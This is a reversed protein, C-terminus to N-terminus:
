KRSSLGCQLLFSVSFNIHQALTMLLDTVLSEGEVYNYDPMSNLFEAITPSSEQGTLTNAVQGMVGQIMNVVNIDEQNPPESTGGLIQHLVGNMGSLLPQAGQMSVQDPRPPPAPPASRLGATGLGSMIFTSGQTPAARARNVTSRRDLSATRSAVGSRQSRRRGLIPSRTPIHRSMCPLFPDFSNVNGPSSVQPPFPIVFSAPPTIGANTAQRRSGPSTTTSSNTSGRSRQSASSPSGRSTEQSGASANPAAASAASASVGPVSRLAQQLASNMLANFDNQATRRDPGPGNAETQATARVTISASGIGGSIPITVSRTTTRVGDASTTNTAPSAAPASAESSSRTASASENGSSDTTRPPEGGGPSLNVPIGLNIPVQQVRTPHLMPPMGPPRARLELPGSRSFDLMIDSIAHQAHSLFHAAMSVDDFLQQHTNIEEGSRSTADERLIPILNSQHCALRANTRQYEELVRALAEPRGRPSSTLDAIQSRNGNEASSSPLTGTPEGTSNSSAGVSARASSAVNPAATSSSSATSNNQTSTDSPVSQNNSDSLTRENEQRAFMGRRSGPQGPRPGMGYLMASLAEAFGHHTTAANSEVFAEGTVPISMMEIAFGVEGTIPPFVETGEEESNPRDDASSAQSPPRGTQSGAAPPNDMRDVIRNTLRLM